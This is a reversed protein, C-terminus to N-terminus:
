FALIPRVRSNVSLGKGDYGWFFGYSSGTGTADVGLSVAYDASGESSSWYWLYDDTVSDYATGKTGAKAMATEWATAATNDNDFWSTWKIDGEALGGLGEQMKVWQQASPLFWGTTGTAPAALGTYNKAQYAAPYKTAADEMAALTATNTYGSVDTTRKLADANNVRASEGFEYAGTETSWKVGSAANKLCLVLGHGTFTSGGVTTGTETFADTGLYAIVGIPTKGAVLTSSWTGDSYYLDGLKPEPYTLPSQSLYADGGNVYKSGDWYVTGTGAVPNGDTGLTCGITVTGCKAFSGNDKGISNPAGSGKTATVKTVGSTITIDGCSGDMGGGIGAASVGGEAEVTGGTILIDGCSAVETSGSGIGAASIGGTAEVKGGTIRIDGCSAYGGGGIGAANRSGTATISGGEITINGCPIGLGGGIGAGYGNSSADLSGDGQITLTKGEPVHIGPYYQHFGKVKNTGDLVITADGLCSIGAHKYADQNVHTGEITAGSLTVTAGEAISIKVNGQLTGTLTEGDQATYDATLTSLDTTAPYYTYPSTEVM